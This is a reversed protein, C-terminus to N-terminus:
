FFVVLLLDIGKKDIGTFNWILSLTKIAYKTNAIYFDGKKKKEKDEISINESKVTECSIESIEGKLFKDFKPSLYNYELKDFCYNSVAGNLIYWTVDSKNNKLYSSSLHYSSILLLCLLLFSFFNMKKSLFYSFKM